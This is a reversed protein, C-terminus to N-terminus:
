FDNSESVMALTHVLARIIDESEHDSQVAVPMNHANLLENAENLWDKFKDM